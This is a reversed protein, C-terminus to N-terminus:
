IAVCVNTAESNMDDKEQSDVRKRPFMRLSNLYSVYYNIFYRINFSAFFNYIRLMTNTLINKIIRYGYTYIRWTQDKRYDEM